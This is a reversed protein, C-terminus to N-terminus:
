KSGEQESNVVNAVAAVAWSLSVAGPDPSGLSKEMHPRARGIKPLMDSTAAAADAAVAIAVTWSEGTRLGAKASAALSDAVPSLVDIMTKDGLQAKGFTSLATLADAVGDSVNSATPVVTDGLNRAMANLALGWLAGSTGGARDAWADGAWQLVTGAGAGREAADVAALL